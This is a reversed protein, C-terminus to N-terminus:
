ETPPEPLPMWHTVQSPFKSGMSGYTMVRYWGDTTITLVEENAKPLSETIAVWNSVHPLTYLKVAQEAFWIM